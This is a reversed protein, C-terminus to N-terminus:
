DVYMRGGNSLFIGGSSHLDPLQVLRERALETLTRMIGERSVSGGPSIGAIAYETEVGFLIEAMSLEEGHSTHPLMPPLALDSISQVHVGVLLNLFLCISQILM